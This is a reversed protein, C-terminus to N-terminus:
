VAEGHGRAAAIMAEFSPYGLLQYVANELRESRRTGNFVGSVTKVTVGYRDGFATLTLGRRAL